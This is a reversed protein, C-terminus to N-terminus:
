LVDAAALVLDDSLVIGGFVAGRQGGWDIIGM